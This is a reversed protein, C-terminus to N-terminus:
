TASENEGREAGVVRVYTDVGWSIVGIEKSVREHERQLEKTEEPTGPVAFVVYYFGPKAVPVLFSFVTVESPALTSSILSMGGVQKTEIGDGLIVNGKEQGVVPATHVGGESWNLVETRNGVNSLTALVEIYYGNGNPNTQSRASLSVNITAREVLSKQLRELEVRARGLERLSLFRYIAWIGGIVVAAAIAISQIGEALDKFNTLDM